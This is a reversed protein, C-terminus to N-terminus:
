VTINGNDMSSLMEGMVAVTRVGQPCQYNDKNINEEHGMHELFIKQDQVSMNLSAYYTSARHRMKTATIGATVGAKKCAEAVAHWGSCHSNGNGARDKTAFVFKNEQSIGFEHREKVLIEIAKVTDNPILVPVFKKGKGQLYCLKFQGVLFKVDIDEIKEVEDEPLWTGDLADQWEKLLIRSAEEGRRANFLTLRAVVLTRLNTYCSINFESTLKLIEKEMYDKLNRVDMEPPLNSPKRSKEFCNRLSVARAKPILEKSKHKYAELFHKMEKKKTDELTAAYHGTLAKVSRLIVADMTQRLGHKDNNDTGKTLSYVAECLDELHARSLMQEVTKGNCNSEFENYLRALIRMETMVVKRVEDEKGEEHRRLNYHRYGVLVITENTRCLNGVRDDNFRNLIDHFEMDGKIEEMTASLLLKPKLPTPKESVCKHRFFYKASFYGKCESCHRVSDKGKRARMTVEKNDAMLECNFKHIGEKRIKEFVEKEHEKSLVHIEEICNKHKRKIHRKM